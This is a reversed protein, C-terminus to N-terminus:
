EWTYRLPSSDVANGIERKCEISKRWAFNRANTSPRESAIALLAASSDSLLVIKKACAHTIKELALTIAAVEGDFNTANAGAPASLPFLSSYVGAGANKNAETASGDTYIHIWQPEPYREAITALAVTRLEEAPTMSKNISMILNVLIAYPCAKDRQPDRIEFNLGLSTIISKTAKIFTLQTKLRRTNGLTSAWYDSGNRLVREYLIVANIKRRDKLSEIEAQLQMTLILTSKASGTIIRLAKNQVIDLRGLVSDTATVMIGSGYELVPRIYSRYAHRLVEATAGWKMATIRKMLRLRSEGKDAANKCQKAWTLKDDLILGLYKAEHTRSIAQNDLNVRLEHQKTCLTLLQYVTKLTNIIM